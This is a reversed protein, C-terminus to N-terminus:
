FAWDAEEEIEGSLLNRIIDAERAAHALNGAAAWVEAANRWANLSAAPHERYSM